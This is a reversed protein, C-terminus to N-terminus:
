FEEGKHIGILRLPAETAGKVKLPLALIFGGCPPMQDLNAVNEILVKGAGLFAQHVPYGEEPRDPSLTDIGLARAGRDLLAVAAEASVAPFVLNNRYKEPEHWFQEWGTKIMVCSNQGIPGYTKEFSLIDDPTVSYRAHAKDSVDIVVCPMYLDALCLRDITLGGPICHSPADIHTGIGAQLHFEMVRFKVDTTCGVYDLTVTSKFGCSGDWSAMSEEITHTLDIFKM